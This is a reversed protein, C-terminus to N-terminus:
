KRSGYFLTIFITPFVAQNEAGALLEIERFYADTLFGVEFGSVSNKSIGLEFNLAAKINGGLQVNSQGVGQFLNGPGLINGVTHRPNNPDFPENVSVLFNSDGSDVYYPAVLGISPGAAFVAKIEVGQQPAKSFLVIDRGYQL